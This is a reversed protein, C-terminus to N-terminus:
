VLAVNLQGFKASGFERNSVATYQLIENTNPLLQITM